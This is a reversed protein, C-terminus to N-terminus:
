CSRYWRASSPSPCSGGAVVNILSEIESSSLKSNSNKQIGCIVAKRDEYTDVRSLLLTASHFSLEGCNSVLSEIIACRSLSPSITTTSSGNPLSRSVLESVFKISAIWNQCDPIMSIRSGILRSFCHDGLVQHSSPSVPVNMAVDELNVVLLENSSQSHCSTPRPTIFRSIADSVRRSISPTMDDSSDYSKPYNSVPSDYGSPGYEISRPSSSSLSVEPSIISRESLLLSLLKTTQFYDFNGTMALVSTSATNKLADFCISCFSSVGTDRSCFYHEPPYTSIKRTTCCRPMVLLTQELLIKGVKFFNAPDRAEVYKKGVRANCKLCTVECVRYVGTTFQTEYAEDASHHCNYVFNALFAPGYGGHYHPSDVENQTIILSYCTKCYFSLVDKPANTKFKPAGGFRIQSWNVFYENLSDLGFTSGSMRSVEESDFRKSANAAFKGRMVRRYQTSLLSFVLQDSLYECSYDALIAIADDPLPSCPKRTPSSDDLAWRSAGVGEELHNM